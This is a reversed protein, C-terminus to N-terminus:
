TGMLEKAAMLDTANVAGNQRADFADQPSAEKDDPPQPTSKNAFQNMMFSDQKTQAAEVLEDADEDDWGMKLYVPKPLSSSYAQITLDLQEKTSLSDRFLIRPKIEFDIAGNDFSNLNYATFGDYRRFAGISIAMQTAKRLDNTYNSQLEGIIDVADSYMNEIAVGSLGSNSERMRQLALQPLDSEIERQQDLAAALAGTIDLPSIIPVIAGNDGLYIIPSQDRNDTTVSLTDPTGAVAEPPRAGTAAFKANVAKRVNDHILTTLDNLNDIKHRVHHWSTVGFGHATQVHQTWQVPVFGYPNQWEAVANGSGDQAFAFPENGRYTRFWEKDITERYDYWKNIKEDFREYRIDIFKVNGVDDFRVDYVKRPDLVELRVKQRTTDDIVKLAIDGMVSGEHVYMTKMATMNSWQYLNRIATLMTEDAGDIIIAGTEFNEYDIVGGLVKAAEIQAVRGIPNRLGRTKKYLAEQFKYLAAYSNVTHYITNDAYRRNHWYRGLRADYEAFNFEVEAVHNRANYTNIATNVGSFVGSRLAM